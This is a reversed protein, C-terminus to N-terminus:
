ASGDAGLAERAKEVALGTAGEVDDPLAAVFTMTLLVDTVPVFVQTIELGELAGGSATYRVAYAGPEEPPSVPRVSVDSTGQGPITLRLSRCTKVAAAYSRVVATVAGASGLADLQEGVFPGSQGGSFAAVVSAKTGPAKSLNSLRVLARCRARPSSSTPTPEDSESDEEQFGAPLDGLELLAERLAAPTRPAAEAARSRSPTPTGAGASPAASSASASASVTPSVAPAAASSSSSSGSCGALALLAM